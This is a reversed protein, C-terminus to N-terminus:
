RSSESSMAGDIGCSEDPIEGPESGISGTGGWKM